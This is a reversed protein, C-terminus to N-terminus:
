PSVEVLGMMGADAHELIHCHHMWSGPYGEFSVMLEVREDAPVNVTDKWARAEVAHGAARVVQFRFGHLHFPHDMGSENTIIWRRTEGVRATLPTVDPWREGNITFTMRCERSDHTCAGEDLVIEDEATPPPLVDVVGTADPWRRDDVRPQATYALRMVTAPEGWDTDMHGMGSGRDYPLSRVEVVDGPEGDARVLLDIREGPVVLPREIEIADELLGGDTGVLRLSHGPIDLEFYRANAVNVIRWREITGARMPLTPHAVGDVLVLNGQRGLMGMADSPEDFPALDGDRDVLVDDLVLVREVDVEPEADGRVIFPGHLGREVQRSSDEHPHYWFLGADPVVFEFEFGEGPAILPGEAGGDMGAPVRIGHWHISTPEDLENRFHVVVRDGVKAEFLPGPSTGNYGWASTPAGPLWEKEIPAAVLTVEVVDPAPDEDVLRPVRPEQSSPPIELTGPVDIGDHMDSM